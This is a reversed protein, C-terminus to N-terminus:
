KVPMETEKIENGRFITAIFFTEGKTEEEVVEDDVETEPEEEVEEDDSDDSDALEALLEYLWDDDDEEEEEEDNIFWILVEKKNIPVSLKKMIPHLFMQHFTPKDLIHHNTDKTKHTKHNTIHTHNASSPKNRNNLHTGDTKSTIVGGKLSHTISDITLHLNSITMSTTPHQLPITKKCNPASMQTTRTAHVYVVISSRYKNLPTPM